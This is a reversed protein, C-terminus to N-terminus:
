EQEWKLPEGTKPDIEVKYNNGFYVMKVVWLGDDMVTETILAFESALGANRATEKAIIMAGSADTVPGSASSM